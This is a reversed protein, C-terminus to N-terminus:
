AKLKLAHQQQQQQQQQQKQAEIYMEPVCVQCKAKLM